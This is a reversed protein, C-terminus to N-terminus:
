PSTQFFFKEADECRQELTNMRESIERKKQENEAPSNGPLRELRGNLENMVELVGNVKRYITERSGGPIEDMRSIIEYLRVKWNNLEGNMKRCYDRTEM